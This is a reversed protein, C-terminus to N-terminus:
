NRLYFNTPWNNVKQMQKLNLSNGPTQNALGAANSLELLLKDWTLDYFSKIIYGLSSLTVINAKIDLDSCRWSRSEAPLYKKTMEKKM